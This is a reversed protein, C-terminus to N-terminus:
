QGADQLIRAPILKLGGAPQPNGPVGQAPSEDLQPKAAGAPDFGSFVIRGLVAEGLL